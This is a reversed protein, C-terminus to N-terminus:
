SESSLIPLVITFTTGVNLQSKVSITGQHKEIVTEVISLGLGSGGLKRSRAKNVTYFRQFINEQDADPIGIGKDAVSITINKDDRDMTITIHAPPNSYKAGNEILNMFAMEMLNPDALLLMERDTLLKIEIIADRHVEQVM